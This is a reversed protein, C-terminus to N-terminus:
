MGASLVDLAANLDGGVRELATAAQTADFGFSVLQQVLAENVVVAGADQGDVGAPETIDPEEAEIRAAAGAPEIIDLTHWQVWYTGGYGDWEVQCPPQGGNTQVYVGEDGTEITSEANCRARVRMGVRLTAEIYAGYQEDDAFQDRTRWPPREEEDSNDSGSSSLLDGLGVSHDGDDSEGESMMGALEGSSILMVAHEVSGHTVELATSAMRRSFGMEQLMNLRSELDGDSEPPRRVRDGPEPARRAPPLGLPHPPVDPDVFVLTCPRARLLEVVTADCVGSVATANVSRLRFGPRIGAEAAPSGPEVENVEPLDLVNSRAHLSLAIGMLGPQDITVTIEGPQPARAPAAAPAAPHGPVDAPQGPPSGAAPPGGSIYIRQPAPVVHEYLKFLQQVEERDTPDFDDFILERFMAESMGTARDIEYQECMENWQAQSLEEGRGEELENVVHLFRSFGPFGMSRGEPVLQLWIAHFMEDHPPMPSGDDTLQPAGGAAPGEFLLGVALDLNGGARRLADRCADMTAGTVTHLQQLQAETPQPARRPRPEPQLANGDSPDDGPSLMRIQRVKGTELNQQTMTSLSIRYGFRGLTVAVSEGVGNALGRLHAARLQVQVAQDYEQWFGDNNWQWTYVADAAPAGPTGARETPATAGDVLSKVRWLAALPLEDLNIEAGAPLHEQVIAVVRDIEEIPLTELSAVLRQKETDSMQRILDQGDSPDLIPDTPRLVPRVERNHTRDRIRQGLSSTRGMGSQEPEPELEPEPEAQEPCVAKMCEVWAAAEAPSDCRLELYGTALHVGAVRFGARAEETSADEATPTPPVIARCLKLDVRRKPHTHWRLQQEDLNELPNEVTFFTLFTGRVVAFYKHWFDWNGARKFLWGQKVVRGTWFRPDARVKHKKGLETCLSEFDTDELPADPKALRAVLDQPVEAGQLAEAYFTQICELQLQARDQATQRPAPPAVVRGRQIGPKRREVPSALEEQGAGGPGRSHAPSSPQTGPQAAQAQPGPGSGSGEILTPAPGPGTRAEWGRLPPTDDSSQVAYLWRPEDFNRQEAGLDSIVWHQRLWRFMHLTGNSYPPAGAYHPINCPAYYGNAMEYGAGNVTLGPGPGGAGRLGSRRAEM